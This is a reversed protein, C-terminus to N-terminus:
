KWTVLEQVITSFPKHENADDLFDNIDKLKNANRIYETTSALWVKQNEPSTM